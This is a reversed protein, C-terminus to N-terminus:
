LTGIRNCSGQHDYTEGASRFTKKCWWSIHVNCQTCHMHSCGGNKEIPTKCGPCLARIDPKERVWEELDYDPTNLKSLYMACSMGHHYQTHCKTCIIIGCGACEYPLGENYGIRYVMVCDATSCFKYTEPNQAVFKEVSSKMLEQRQDSGLMNNFDKWVLPHQCGEASCLIPIQKSNIGNKILDRICESCYPHGCDELRYIKGDIPCFCVKCDIDDPQFVM